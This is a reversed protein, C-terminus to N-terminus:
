SVGPSIVSLLTTASDDRWVPDSNRISAEANRRPKHVDTWGELVCTYAMPALRAGGYCNVCGPSHNCHSPQHGDSASGNLRLHALCGCACGNTRVRGPSSAPLISCGWPRGLISSVSAFRLWAGCDAAHRLCLRKRRFGPDALPLGVLLRHGCVLFAWFFLQLRGAPAFRPCRLRRM